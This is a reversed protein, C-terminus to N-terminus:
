RGRLSKQHRDEPTKGKPSLESETTKFLTKIIPAKEHSESESTEIYLSSESLTTKITPRPPNRRTRSSPLTGQKRSAGIKHGRQRWSRLPKQRRRERQAEQRSRESTSSTATKAPAASIQKMKDTDIVNNIINDVVNSSM